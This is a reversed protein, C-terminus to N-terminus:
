NIEKGERETRALTGKFLNVPIDFKRRLAEPGVEFEVHLIGEKVVAEWLCDEQDHPPLYFWAKGMREFAYGEGLNAIEEKWDPPLSSLVELGGRAQGDMGLRDPARKVADTSVSAQQEPAATEVTRTIVTRFDSPTMPMNMHQEGGPKPLSDDNRAM